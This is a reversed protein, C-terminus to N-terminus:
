FSSSSPGWINLLLLDNYRMTTYVVFTEQKQMEGTLM